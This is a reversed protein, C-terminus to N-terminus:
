MNTLPDRFHTDANIIFLILDPQFERALPPFIEGLAHLYSSCTTHPPLPVNVNYGKGAGEGIEGIFGMAGPYLTHPDQHLSIYLVTPDTYFIDQIGNGHHCDCDLVLAKNIYGHKQLSRLVIAEQNLYCFGFTIFEHRRMAHHGGFAVLQLARDWKGQMVMEAGYLLGGAQLKARQYTGVPVPTDADLQGSQASLAKLQNLLSIDHATLVEEDSVERDPDVISLGLLETLRDQRLKDLYLTLREKRLPHTPGFDHEAVKEQYILGIRKM